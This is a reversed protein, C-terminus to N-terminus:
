SNPFRKVLAHHLARNKAASVHERFRDDLSKGTQGVYVTQVLLSHQTASWRNRQTHFWAAVAMGPRMVLEYRAQVPHLCRVGAM